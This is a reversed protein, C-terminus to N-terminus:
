FTEAEYKKAMLQLSAQVVWGVGFAFLLTGIGVVGGLLWGILCVVIEISSRVFGVRWGTRSCLGIMLGDRPGAGLHCTLYFASSIGIVLVGGVCMLWRALWGQAAPVFRVTLGIFLAIFIINLVTGLGPRQYLPIWFLLVVISILFTVWGIDWGTRMSIGQSLVTWPTSGLGSLVLLGEGVGFASLALIIVVLPKFKFSWKFSAMWPTKPLVKKSQVM